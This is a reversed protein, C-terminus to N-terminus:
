SNEMKNGEKCCFFFFVIASVHNNIMAPKNNIPASREKHYMEKDVEKRWTLYILWKNFRPEWLSVPVQKHLEMSGCVSGFSTKLNFLFFMNVISWHTCKITLVLVLVESPDADNKHKTYFFITWVWRYWKWLFTSATLALISLSIQIWATYFLYLQRVAEFSNYTYELYSSKPSYNCALHKKVDLVWLPMCTNYLLILMRM